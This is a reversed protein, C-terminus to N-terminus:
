RGPEGNVLEHLLATVTIRAINALLAVPVASALLLAKEWLSRRVLLAGATAM